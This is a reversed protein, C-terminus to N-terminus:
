EAASFLVAAKRLTMMMTCHLNRGAAGYPIWRPEACPLSMPRRRIASGRGMSGASFRPPLTCPPPIPQGVARQMMDLEFPSVGRRARATGTGGDGTRVVIHEGDSCQIEAIRLNMPRAQSLIDLLTAFGLADDQMFGSHSYAHAVGVHGALGARCGNWHAPIMDIVTNEVNM